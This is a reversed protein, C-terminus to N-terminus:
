GCAQTTQNTSNIHVHRWKVLRKHLKTQTIISLRPVVIYPLHYICMQICIHVITVYQEHVYIVFQQGTLVLL